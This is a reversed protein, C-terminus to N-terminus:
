PYPYVHHARFCWLKAVAVWAACLYGADLRRLSSKFKHYRKGTKIVYMNRSVDSIWLVMCTTFYNILAFRIPVIWVTRCNTRSLFYKPQQSFLLGVRLKSGSKSFGIVAMRM